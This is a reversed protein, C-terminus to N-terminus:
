KRGPKKNPGGGFAGFSFSNPAAAAGGFGVNNVGSSFGGLGSSGFPSSVPATPNSFGTAAPQGFGTAAPQGFGTATAQGFGTAAPQGFSTASSQGFGTAAPQGFSTASSQGFGTASPQGFSFSAPQGFGTTTTATLSATTAAPQGLGTAAAPQGIGTGAAGFGSFSTSFSTSAVPAPTQASAPAAPPAPTFYRTSSKPAVAEKFRQRLEDRKRQKERTERKERADVGDSSSLPDGVLFNDKRWPPAGVSESATDRASERAAAVGRRASIASEKFVKVRYRLEDMKQRLPALSEAEVRTITTLVDKLLSRMMGEATGSAGGGGGGGGAGVELRHGLEDLKFLLEESRIVGDKQFFRLIPSPFPPENYGGGNWGDSGDGSFARGQVVEGMDRTAEVECQLCEIQERYSSLRQNQVSRKQRFEHIKVRVDHLTTAFASSSRMDGELDACEGSLQGIVKDVELAAKRFNESVECVKTDESVM